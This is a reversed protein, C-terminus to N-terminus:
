IWKSTEGDEAKESTSDQASCLFIMVKFRDSISDFILSHIKKQPLSLSIHVIFTRKKERYAGTNQLSRM